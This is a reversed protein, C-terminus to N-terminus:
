TCNFTTTNLKVSITTRLYEFLLDKCDNFHEAIIFQYNYARGAILLKSMRRAIYNYTYRIIDNAYM